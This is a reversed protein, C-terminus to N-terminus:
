VLQFDYISGGKHLKGMELMSKIKEKAQPGKAIIFMFGGGGAGCLFASRTYPSIRALLAEVADNTSGPDLAKKLLWYKNLMDAFASFDMRQLAEFASGATLKLDRVIESATAGPNEKYFSIVGRLINRAMRKQGTFYLLSRQKLFKEFKIEIDKPLFKVEPIQNDGPRTTLLKVGPLLGGYQDQWGGHTGMEHELALTLSGIRTPSSDRGRVRELATLLAAGLLSSTGMGSGKPVDASISIELGGENFEYGVVALASKVLACWDSPDKTSYIEERNRLVTSKHLDVSKVRLEKAQIKRVRAKVPKKGSLTVAANLVTGGVDNCIPPTDSWGGAFDIRLPLSVNVEDALRLMAKRDTKSMIEDMSHKQWLGDSKFDDEVRYKLYKWQGNKLPFATLCEGEKLNVEGYERPLFTVVNRGALKMEEVGIACSDVWRDGGGLRELLERTTGIHFFDCEEVLNAEFRAKSTVLNQTYEEYIDMQKPSRTNLYPLYKKMMGDVAEPSVYLIGTDIAIEGDASTQLAEEPSPKQLFGKVRRGELIYVGHKSARQKDGKFAVGTVGKSAFKCSAFDFQPAVDGCVVLVGKKPLKLKSMDSVIKEFLSERAGNKACLPVFAKGIAAYSPLRKSDGGSHCILTLKNSIVGCKNLANVTALLSGVRKGGPDPVVFIGEKPSCSIRKLVANYGEAQRKNASTIIIRDFSTM